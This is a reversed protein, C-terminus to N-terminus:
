FYFYHLLLIFILLVSGAGHLYMVILTGLFAQVKFSTAPSSPSFTRKMFQSLGVFITMAIGLLLFKSKLRNWDEDGDDCEMTTPISILGLFLKSCDGLMLWYRGSGVISDLDICTQVMQAFLGIFIAFCVSLNMFTSIRAFITPKRM